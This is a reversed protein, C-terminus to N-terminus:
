AKGSSYPRGKGARFSILDLRREERIAATLTRHRSVVKGTRSNRVVFGLKARRKTAAAKIARPKSRTHSKVGQAKPARCAPYAM